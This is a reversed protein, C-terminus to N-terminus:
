AARAASFLSNVTERKRGNVRRTNTCESAIETRAVTSIPCCSTSSSSKTAIRSFGRPMVARVPRCMPKGLTGSIIHMDMSINMCMNMHINMDMNMCLGGPLLGQLVCLALALEVWQV